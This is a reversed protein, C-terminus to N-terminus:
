EGTAAGIYEAADSINSLADDLANIAEQAVEGRMGDQISEPMNDYYDEKESKLTELADQVVTLAEQVEALAKRRQKNM